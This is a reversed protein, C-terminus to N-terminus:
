WFIPLFKVNNRKFYQWNEHLNNIIGNTKLIFEMKGFFQRFDGFIPKVVNIGVCISSVNIHLKMGPYTHIYMYIRKMGHSLSKNLSGAMLVMSKEIRKEWSIGPWTRVQIMEKDKRRKDEWDEDQKTHGITSGGEQVASLMEQKLDALARGM